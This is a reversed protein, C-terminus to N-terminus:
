KTTESSLLIWPRHRLGVLRLIKTIAHFVLTFSVEVHDYQVFFPLLQGDKHVHTALPIEKSPVSERGKGAEQVSQVPIWAITKVDPILFDTLVDTPIPRDHEAKAEELVKTAEKIGDPGLKKVQEAIRAKEDEELKKALAASPKGIVVISSPKIYTRPFILLLCQCRVLSVFESLLDTWQKSTWKRLEEYQKIDDVAKALESGDEPGYLFDSIVTSSFTDGKSSELKSRLQM